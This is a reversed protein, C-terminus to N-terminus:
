AVIKTFLLQGKAESCAHRMELRPGILLAVMNMEAERTNRANNIWYFVLKGIRKLENGYNNYDNLLIMIDVDSGQHYDGRAYSSYLYVAKLGDGYVQVLGKRLEELPKKIRRTM